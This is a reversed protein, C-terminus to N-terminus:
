RAGEAGRTMLLLRREMERLDALVSERDPAYMGHVFLTAPSSAGAPAIGVTLTGPTITISSAMVTIEFDTECRLPLEVIGPQVALGPTMVDRAVRLAGAVVEYGIYAAYCLGYWPHIM